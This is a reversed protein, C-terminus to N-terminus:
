QNLFAFSKGQYRPLTISNRILMFSQYASNAAAMNDLWAPIDGGPDVRCTYTVQIRQKATPRIKWIALWDAIRVTNPRTAVLNPVGVGKVQVVKSNPDQEFTLQVSMDRDSVPWPLATVVYYVLETESIRKVLQASKTKYMVNKYNAIDSLLAVLQSQTGPMSCEVKLETLRSGPVDRTYVQIQDKDKALRWGEKDQGYVAEISMTFSSFVLTLYCSLQVLKM